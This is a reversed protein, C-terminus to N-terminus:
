LSSHIKEFQVAFKRSLDMMLEGLLEFAPIYQNENTNGGELANNIVLCFSSLQETRYVLVGLDDVLMELQKMDKKAPM